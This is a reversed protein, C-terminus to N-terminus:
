VDDICRSDLHNIGIPTPRVNDFEFVAILIRQNGMFFEFFQLLNQLTLSDAQEGVFGLRCSNCAPNQSSGATKVLLVSKGGWKLDLPEAYYEM